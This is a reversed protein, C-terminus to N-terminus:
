TSGEIEDRAQTRPTPYNGAQREQSIYALFLQLIDGWVTQVLWVQFAHYEAITQWRKQPRVLNSLITPLSQRLTLSHGWRATSAIM